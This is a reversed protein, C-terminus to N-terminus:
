GGLWVNQFFFTLSDLSLGTVVEILTLGPHSNSAYLLGRRFNRRISATDLYHERSEAVRTVTGQWLLYQWRRRLGFVEKNLLHNFRIRVVSVSADSPICSYRVSQKAITPM